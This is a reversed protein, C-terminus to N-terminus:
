FGDPTRISFFREDMVVREDRYRIWCRAFGGYYTTHAFRTILSTKSSGGEFRGENALPSFDVSLALTWGVAITLLAGSMLSTTIRRALSMARRLSVHRRPM